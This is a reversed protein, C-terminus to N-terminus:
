EAFRTERLKVLSDLTALQKLEPKISLVIVKNNIKTKEVPIGKREMRMIYDRISSETLGLKTALIGYTVQRKEQELIYIASFVKFEQRTLGKFKLKLELTYEKILSSIDGSQLRSLQNQTTQRDTPVGENGTSSQFSSPARIDPNAPNEAIQTSNQGTKGILQSLLTKIESLESKLSEIEKDKSDISAEKVVEKEEAM